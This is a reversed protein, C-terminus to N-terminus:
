GLIVGTDIQNGKIYESVKVRKKGPMQIEEILIVNDNTSVRIGEKDVKLITSPAKDSKENLVKTKWIKM